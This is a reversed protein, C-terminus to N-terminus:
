PFKISDLQTGTRINKITTLPNAATETM